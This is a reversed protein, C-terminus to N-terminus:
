EMKILAKLVNKRELIILNLEIESKGMSDQSLIKILGAILSLYCEYNLIM